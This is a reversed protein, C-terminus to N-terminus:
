WIPHSVGAASERNLYVPKVMMIGTVTWTPWARKTGRGVKPKSNMKCIGNPWGCKIM